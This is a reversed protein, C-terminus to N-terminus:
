GGEWTQRGTVVGDGRTIGEGCRLMMVKNM